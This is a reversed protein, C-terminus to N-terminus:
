KVITSKPTDQIQRTTDKDAWSADRNCRAVDQPTKPADQPTKPRRPPTKPADQTTKSADQPGFDLWSPDLIPDLPSLFRTSIPISRLMFVFFNSSAALKQLFFRGFHIWTPVLISALISRIAFSCSLSFVIIKWYIKIIQPKESSCKQLSFENIKVCNKPCINWSAALRVWSTARFGCSHGFVRGVRALVTRSSRRNRPCM